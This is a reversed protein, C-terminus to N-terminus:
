RLKELSNLKDGRNAKVRSAAVLQATSATIERSAVILSDFSGLKSKQSPKKCFLKAVPIKFLSKELIKRVKAVFADTLRM